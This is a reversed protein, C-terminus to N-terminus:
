NDKVCRVSRATNKGTDTITAYSKYYYLEMVYAENKGFVESYWFSAVDGVNLFSGDDFYSEPSNRFGGALASFGYDDTGNGSGYWGSASKLKLGANSSGGVAELLTNWEDRNPLHWGSPCAGQLPYTPSCIVGYGCGKGNTSWTGASDMAAAWTYLRGYKVCNSDANGYCYSNDTEYNLNEAMWTQTGIIITKYTQGDRSDTLIGEAPETVKSSSSEAKESSSSAASSSSKVSSSSENTESSSSKPTDSSSSESKKSSSSVSSSSSEDKQSSSSAISSSSENKKSSSSKVANSEDKICRVSYRSSKYTYDSYWGGISFSSLATHYALRDDLEASGWFYTEEGEFIYKGSNEGYGAPLASFAFADTGNGDDSWGSASKLMEVAISEGGVASVLTNWETTDPLHWGSPCAEVAAAWTYLRGYKACYEASDNYCYSNETEYNLNEAMWEQDGIKVTKYTQSDRTDTLSGGIPRVCRVSFKYNVSEHGVSAKDEDYYMSVHYAYYYDSFRTSTWFVGKEEIGKYEENYAMNGKSGGPLALFGISNEGNGDDYWGRKAKLMKGAVSEGGVADILSEWEEKSPLHWGSPCANTAASYTYLRGYKTCNGKKDDYCYSNSTEYNLNEAMWIQSGVIFTRYTQGDRSDTLTEGAQGSTDKLNVIQDDIQAVYDTCASLILLVVLLIMKKM